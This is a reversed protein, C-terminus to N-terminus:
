NILCLRFGLAHTREDPKYERRSTTKIYNQNDYFSGGRVIPSKTDRSSLCWEEVNGAMHLLGYPSAGAPHSNVRKSPGGPSFYNALNDNPLDKGWPYLRGDTGRAAKEWHNETPLKFNLGTKQSLWRCYTKADDWNIGVVPLSDDEVFGRYYDRDRGTRINFKSDPKLGDVQRTPNEAAFKKYQGLSVETKGMWFAPLQVSVGAEGLKFEGAPIYVMVLGNGFGAQWFGKKNKEITMEKIKSKKLLEKVDGPMLPLMEIKRELGSLDIGPETAKALTLSEKAGRYDAAKYNDEVASTFSEIKSIKEELDKTEPTEKINKALTLSNYAQKLQGIKLLREANSLNKRYEKDIPIKEELQKIHQNVKEIIGKTKDNLPTNKHKDLFNRCEALKNEKATLGYPYVELELKLSDNKMVERKKDDLQRRIEETEDTKKIGKAHNLYFEAKVLDGSAMYRGASQIAERFNIEGKGTSPPFFVFYIALTVATLIGFLYLYFKFSKNNKGPAKETEEDEDEQNEGKEIEAKLAAWMEAATRYRKEPEKAMAKEIITQMGPPLSPYKETVQPIPSTMHGHIVEKLEGKYPIDGTLMEYLVVGFSYIDAQPTLKSNEHFQEPAMYVPTGSSKYISIKEPEDLLRQAFGFDILVAKGSKKEIMINDPKIDRHLIGEKHLATLASLMHGCIAKVRKMDMPVAGAMVDSLTKGETVAMITYPIERNGTKESKILAIDHVNIINPHSIKEILRAEKIFKEKVEELEEAKAEENYTMIKLARNERLLKHHILYVKSFAGEGIPKVVEYSGGIQALVEKLLEDKKM